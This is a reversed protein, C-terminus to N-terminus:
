IAMFGGDVVYNAGTIYAARDSALFVALEAVEEPRGWRGLLTEAAVRDRVSEDRITRDIAPTLIPGPSIAVARIGHPGGEVAM